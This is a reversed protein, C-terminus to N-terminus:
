DASGVIGRLRTRFCIFNLIFISLAYALTYLIRVTGIGDLIQRRDFVFVSVASTFRGSTFCGTLLIYSSRKVLVRVAVVIDWWVVFTQQM